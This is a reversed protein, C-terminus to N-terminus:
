PQAGEKSFDVATGDFDCAECRMYAGDDWHIDGEVEETGEDYMRVQQRVEVIFPGESGCEPCRVGELCNTNSM